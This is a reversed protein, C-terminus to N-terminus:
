EEGESENGDADQEEEDEDGEEDENREKDEDEEKDSDDEQEEREEMELEEAPSRFTTRSESLTQINHCGICFRVSEGAKTRTRTKVNKRCTYYSCYRIMEGKVILQPILKGILDKAFGDSSDFLM